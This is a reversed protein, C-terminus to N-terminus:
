SEPIAPKATPMVALRTEEEVGGLAEAWASRAAEKDQRVSWGLYERYPTVRRLTGAQGKSAYLSMLEEMLVPMSWGDLLIHHNTMTLRYQEGSLRILKFRLLPP